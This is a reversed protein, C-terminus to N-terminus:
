KHCAPASQENGTFWTEMWDTAEELTVHLGTELFEKRGALADQRLQERLDESEIFRKLVTKALAHPTSDHRLAIAELRAKYDAELKVSMNATTASMMTEMTSLIQYYSKVVPLHFLLIYLVDPINAM